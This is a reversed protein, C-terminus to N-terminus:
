VESLKVLFEESNAIPLKYDTSGEFTISGNGECLIASFRNDLDIDIEQPEAMEYYLIEGQLSNKLETANDYGGNRIVIGLNGGHMYIGVKDGTNWEVLTEYKSCIINSLVTTAIPKKVVDKLSDACMISDTAKRWNLSGLDVRDVRKVFKKREIGIYNYVSGASWGNGEIDLIAQPVQKTQKTYSSYPTVSDSVEVMIDSYTCPASNNDIYFRIALIDNANRDAINTHIRGMRKGNNSATRSVDQRNGGNEDCYILAFNNALETVTASLTITKGVYDSLKGLKMLVFAKSVTITDNSITYNNTTHQYVLRNANVEFLNKGRVVVDTVKHNVLTPETYPIYETFIKEFDALSNVSDALGMVTLDFLQIDSLVVIENPSHCWYGMRANDITSTFVWGRKGGNLNANTTGKEYVTGTASSPEYCLTNRTNSTLTKDQTVIAIYKHNIKIPFTTNTPTFFFRSTQTTPITISESNILQSVVMSKGGLMKLDFCKAGSPIQKTYAEDTSTEFRHTKGEGLDYLASIRRENSDVKSILNNYGQPAFAEAEDRYQKALLESAKANDESAKANTESESANNASTAAADESMKAFNQSDYAQGAFRSANNAHGLAITSNREAATEAAQAASQAQEAAVQAALALERADGAAKAQNIAGAYAQGASISSSRANNKYGEAESASAAANNMYGLSAEEHSIVQALLSDVQAKSQEVSTRNEDTATKNQSSVTESAKANQESQLAGSAHAAAQNALEQTLDRADFISAMVENPVDTSDQDVTLARNVVENVQQIMMVIEDLSTEIDEAFFPGNNVLNMVQTLPLERTIIINAGEPLAEGDVPYTVIRNQMDIAFNTTENLYNERVFVRVFEPHNEPCEFTFPFSKNTGNGKYINKAYLKQVTMNEDKGFFFAGM